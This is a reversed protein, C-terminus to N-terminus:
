ANKEPAVVALLGAVAAGVSLIGDGLAGPAASHVISAVVGAGAWTSPEKARALLWHLSNSIDFAM